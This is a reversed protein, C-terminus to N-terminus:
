LNIRKRLERRSSSFTLLTYVEIFNEEDLLAPYLRALAEVRDDEFTLREVLRVAQRVTMDFRQGAETIIALQASSFPEDDLAAMIRAIRRSDLQPKFTRTDNVSTNRFSRRRDRRDRRTEEHLKMWSRIRAQRKKRRIDQIRERAIPATDDEIVLIRM